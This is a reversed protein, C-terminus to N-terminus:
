ETDIVSVSGSGKNTIYAHRGDPTIAVDEPDTGVPITATITNSGTDIVSVSGSGSNPIYAHGGDPTIAVDWPDTGVPVTATVAPGGHLTSLLVIGVAMTSTLVIAATTLLRPRARLWPIPSFPTSPFASPPRHHAGAGEEQGTPPVQPHRARSGAASTTRPGDPGFASLILDVATLVVTIDSRFTDHDLRMANRRALGQLADPLEGREPMMAGDVLVPIVPIGRELAARIELVVFDDPDDLRRRQRRDTATAWTPGILAILIRCSAVERAITTAFDAGPDITDVDMFVQQPGLWETLRDALRGALHRTDERRYSLFVARTAGAM